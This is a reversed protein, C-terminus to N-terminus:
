RCYLMVIDGVQPDAFRYGLKNVILRDQGKLTPAMSTGEVRAVQGVFTILLTAYVAASAITKLWAICEQRIQRSM